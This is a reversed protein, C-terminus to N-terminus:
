GSLWPLLVSAFSLVLLFGCMVTITTLLPGSALAPDNDIWRLFLPISEGFCVALFTNAALSVGVVLGLGRGCGQLGGLLMGLVSGNVVGISAERALLPPYSPPVFL